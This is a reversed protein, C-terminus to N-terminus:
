DKERWTEASRKWGIMRRIRHHSLISRVSVFFWVQVIKTMVVDAGKEYFTIVGTIKDKVIIGM